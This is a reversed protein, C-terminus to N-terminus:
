GGGGLDLRAIRQCFLRRLAAAGPSDGALPYLAGWRTADADRPAFTEGKGTGLMKAFRVGKLRRLGGRDLAMRLLAFGVKSQKIKWFYIVTTLDSNM